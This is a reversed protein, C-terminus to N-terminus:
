MAPGLHGTGGTILAVKGSLDFLEHVTPEHEPDPEVHAMGGKMEARNMDVDSREGRGRRSARSPPSTSGCHKCARTSRALPLRAGTSPTSSCTPRRPSSPTARLRPSRSM